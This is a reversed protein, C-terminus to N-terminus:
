SLVHDAISKKLGAATGYMLEHYKSRRYFLQPEGETSYGIGGHVQVAVTALRRFLAAASYKAMRALHACDQGEDKAWAAQYTLYRVGELETACDALPHSIAQFGAIPRGFQKRQNAYDATIKLLRTAAGVAEAAAAILVDDSLASNEAAPWFHGEAVHVHDFRVEFLPQSAYNPQETIVIGDSQAPILAWGAGSETAARVLFADAVSAFPVVMKTGSVTRSASDFHSPRAAERLEDEQWAPIVIVEGGAIKPLWEAALDESGVASLIDAAHVASQLFPSSALVQGFEEFVIALNLAGMQAGGHREEIRLACIGSEGLAAWFARDLKDREGELKRVAASDFSTECIRRVTARLLEQEENFDLDM